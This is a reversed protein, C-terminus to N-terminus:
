DKTVDMCYPPDASVDVFQINASVLKANYDLSIANHMPAAVQRCKGALFEDRGGICGYSLFVCETEPSFAAELYEYARNHSCLNMDDKFSCGPQRRGGNFYIDLHGIQKMVGLKGRLIQRGVLETNAVAQAYVVSEFKAQKFSGSWDVILVAHDNISLIYQNLRIPWGSSSDGFGHVLIYLKTPRYILGITSATNDYFVSRGPLDERQQHVWEVSSAIAKVLPLPGFDEPFYVSGDLDSDIGSKADDDLSPYAFVGNVSIFLALAFKIM